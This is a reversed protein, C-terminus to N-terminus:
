MNDVEYRLEDDMHQLRLTAEPDNGFQVFQLSVPRNILTGRIDVVRKIFDAVKDEVTEKSPTGEWLGDTFVILTLHKKQSLPSSLYRIYQEFIFGLSSRMDTHVGAQPQVDRKLMVKRFLKADKEGNLVANGRTFSVDMGNKDLGAAKTVLLELLITAQDWHDHM